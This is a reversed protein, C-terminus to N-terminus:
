LSNDALSPNRPHVSNSLFSLSGTQKGGMLEILQYDFGSNKDLWRQTQSNRDRLLLSRYEARDLHGPILVHDFNLWGHNTPLSRPLCGLPAGVSIGPVARHVFLHCPDETNPKLDLHTLLRNNLLLPLPSTAPDSCHSLMEILFLLGQLQPATLDLLCSFQKYGLHPELKQIGNQAEYLRTIHGLHHSEHSLGSHGIWNSIGELIGKKPQVIGGQTHIGAVSGQWTDSIHRLGLPYKDPGRFRREKLHVAYFEERLDTLLNKRASYRAGRAM